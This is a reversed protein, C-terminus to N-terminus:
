LHTTVTSIPYRDLAIRAHSRAHHLARRTDAPDRQLIRAVADSALGEVDVLSSIQGLPTPSNLSQRM